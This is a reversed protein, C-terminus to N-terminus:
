VVSKRDITPFSFYTRIGQIEEYVGGLMERDWVPINQLRKVLAPDEADFIPKSDTQFDITNIDGLGYAALTSRINADIYTRERVLQNPEVVYKRVMGSLFDAEKGIFGAALLIGFIVAFKWGKKRHISVALSFVFAALFFVSLRIFPLVTHMEVYGPGYFAPLNSTAYLLQYKELLFGWGVIATTLLALIGIHLRAKRPLAQQKGPASVRYEFWYLFIVATLLIAFAFLVEKQILNYIPLSFLYFSIDKGFLPDAAGSESSFLFLLADEWYIYMPLAIPLAMVASLPLYLRQFGRHLFSLLNQTGAKGSIDQVNEARNSARSAFRFNIYFIGFFIFAFFIFVLYRYVVRMLFYGTMEQSQFWWFDVVFDVFILKLLLIVLGLASLVGIFIGLKRKWSKM